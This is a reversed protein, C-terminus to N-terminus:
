RAPICIAAGASRVLVEFGDPILSDSTLVVEECGAPVGPQGQGYRPDLCAQVGRKQLTNVIGDMLPWLEHDELRMCVPGGEQVAELGHIESAFLWARGDREELTLANLGAKIGSVSALATLALVAPGLFLRARGLGTVLLLTGGIALWSLPALISFWLFLHPHLGERIQLASILTTLHVALSLVCIAILLTSRRLKRLLLLCATLVAARVLITLAFSQWLLHMRRMLSSALPLSEINVVAASWERYGDLPDVTPESTTFYSLLQSINGGGPTTVEQIVVPLWLVAFVASAAGISRGDIRRRMVIAAAGAVIFASIVTPVTGVHSQASFSGFAVAAALWIPTGGALFAGLSILMALMPLVLVFPNWDSLFLIPNIARIYAALLMCLLLHMGPPGHRRVAAHMALISLVAIACVTLISSSAAMGTLYYLPIRLYFYMPGPHFFELRSYPGTLTHGAETSRTMVELLAIDGVVPYDPVGGVVVVLAATLFPSLVLLLGLTSLAGDTWHRRLGSAGRSCSRGADEGTGRFPCSPM